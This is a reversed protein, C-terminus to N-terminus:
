LAPKPRGVLQAVPAGCGATDVAATGREADANARAVAFRYREYELQAGDIAVDTESWAFDQESVVSEVACVKPGNQMTAEMRSFLEASHLYPSFSRTAPGSACVM